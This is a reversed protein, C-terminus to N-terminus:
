IKNRQALLRTMEAKITGYCECAVEELEKRRLVTVRGRRYEILGAKQLAGAAITVGARQVGLMAALFDHTLNLTDTGMRDRTMLLWRALRQVIQHLSNCAATQSVEVFLAQSYSSVLGQLEASQKLEKWFDAARMRMGGDAIQVVAQHPSQDDGSLLATGLMGESGIIAMEVRKGDRLINVISIISQHPFYVHSIKERPSYLVEGSAFPVPELLPALPAYSKVSLAALLRNEIVASQVKAAPM